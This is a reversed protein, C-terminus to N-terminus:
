KIAIHLSLFIIIFQTETSLYAIFPNWTGHLAAFHVYTAAHQKIFEDHKQCQETTSKCSIEVIFCINNIKDQTLVPPLIHWVFGIDALIKLM